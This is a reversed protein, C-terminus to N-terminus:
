IEPPPVQAALTLLRRLRADGIKLEDLHAVLNALYDLSRGESGRGATIAAAKEADTGHGVFQAHSVDAVYARAQVVTGDALTVTLNRPLYIGTILERADLYAVVDAAAEPAIRFRPRPLGRRGGGDSRV